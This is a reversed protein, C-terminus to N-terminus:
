RRRSRLRLIMNLYIEGFEFDGVSINPNLEMGEQTSLRIQDISAGTRNSIEEFLDRISQDNQLTVQHWVGIMTRVHFTKEIPENAGNAGNYNVEAEDSEELKRILEDRKGRANLGRRKLEIQLERYTSDYYNMNLYYHWNM